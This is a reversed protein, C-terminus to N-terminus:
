HMEFNDFTKEMFRKRLKGVGHHHSICGGNRLVEYRVRSEVEEYIEVERAWDKKAYPTSFYVYVAAGTEYLQTIRCSVWVDEVKVGKLEHITQRICTSVNKCLPGVQSWPCSTEFSEALVGYSVAIDRLYAIVYTLNYGKMGNDAGGVIANYKKAITLMQKEQEDCLAKEGEFMVTAAVLNKPDFGKIKMVYFETAQKVMNHLLGGEPPKLSQGFRFQQNDMLRLSTPYIRLRAMEEMFATGVEFSPFILSNFNTVEPIPKLTLIADTIVGFNGEHGMLSNYFNPGSSVRPSHHSQKYTGVSTVITFSKVIDEINGYTNKKMGSARTSIWGGLTSFEISDPEHGCTMGNEKLKSELDIGRIGAQVCAIRNVKDIWLVQNMRSMDLSVIMRKENQLTDLYLALTVNTGGGYPVLIVNFENALKVMKEVQETSNPYLVVDVCRAFKGNRLIMVERCTAGHSHMIREWKEFSRRSYCKEGEITMLFDHNINQPPDIEM